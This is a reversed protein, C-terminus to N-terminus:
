RLCRGSSHNGTADTARIVDGAPVDVKVSALSQPTRAAPERVQASAAAGSSWAVAGLVFLNRKWHVRSFM